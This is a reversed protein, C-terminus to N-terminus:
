LTSSVIRAMFDQIPIQVPESNKSESCEKKWMGVVKKTEGEFVSLM